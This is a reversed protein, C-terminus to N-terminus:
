LPALYRYPTKLADSLAQVTSTASPESIGFIMRSAAQLVTAFTETFICVLFNESCSLVYLDPGTVQEEEEIREGGEARWREHRDILETLYSTKKAM